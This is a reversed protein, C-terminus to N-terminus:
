PERREPGPQLTVAVPSPGPAYAVTDPAGFREAAADGHWLVLHMPETGDAVRDAGFRRGQGAGQFRYELGLEALAVGLPYGFPHGFYMEREDVVVPEEVDRRPLEDTLQDVITAVAAQGDRYADAGHLQYTRPANAVALLATVAVASALPWRAGKPAGRVLASMVGIVLFAATPWLWRYNNPSLGFYTGPVQSANVVAASVAAFATAAYLPLWGSRRVPLVAAAALAVLVGALALLQWNSDRLQQPDFTAYGPRVYGSPRTLVDAVIRSGTGIGPPESSGRSSLVATFNGWGFLQDVLTPIWLVVGVGLAVSWSIPYRRDRDSRWALAQGVVLPMTLVAVLIAYTLHTQVVLSGFVVFVLPAWRDGAVGAWVAVLVCLYSVLLFQHQRPTILMESGIVWSLLAVGVMAAVVQEAGGLRSALWAITVIAALHVVVVGIATGGAWSVKTFPALLVLQMSGLNNVFEDMEFSGSSWAGLLPHHRTAVDLSRLTFYADDGSPVWSGAASRVAHWALPLAAIVVAVMALTRDWPEHTEDITPAAAEDM